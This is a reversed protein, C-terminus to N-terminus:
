QPSYENYNMSLLSFDISTVQGDGDFDCRGDHWETGSSVQLYDNILLSFDGGTIQVDDNTNGELLTGMNVSSTLSTLVVDELSILSHPTVLTIRYPGSPVEVEFTITDTAEVIQTITIDGSTGTGTYTYMPVAAAVFPGEEGLITHIDLVTSPHYLKLTLPIQFGEPDPRLGGQLIVTGTLTVPSVVAIGVQSASLESDVGSYYMVLETASLEVVRPAAVAGSNWGSGEEKVLVPRTNKSWNTIGDNSKAVGIAIQIEAKTFGSYGSYWMYYKGGDKIVSAVAVGGQDWTTGASLVPGTHKIWTEGDLSTAYGIASDGILSTGSRGTYWMKYGGVGDPIVWGSHVGEDDWVGGGEPTLVPNGSNQPTWDFGDPSTVYFIQPLM